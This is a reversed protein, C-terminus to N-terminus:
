ETFLAQLRAQMENEFSPATNPAPAITADRADWPLCRSHSPM